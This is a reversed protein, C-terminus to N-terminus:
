VDFDVSRECDHRGCACLGDDVGLENEWLALALPLCRYVKRLLWRYRVYLTPHRVPEPLRQAVANM